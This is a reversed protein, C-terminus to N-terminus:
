KVNKRKKANTHIQKKNRLKMLVRDKKTEKKVVSKSEPVKKKRKKMTNMKIRSSNQKSSSVVPTRMEMKNKEKKKNRVSSTDGEGANKKKKVMQKRKEQLKLGLCSRTKSELRGKFPVHAQKKIDTKEKTVSPHPSSSSGTRARKVSPSTQKM